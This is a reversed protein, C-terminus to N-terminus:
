PSQSKYSSRCPKIVFEAVVGVGFVSKHVFKLATVAIGPVRILLKECFQVIDEIIITRPRGVRFRQLQLLIQPLIPQLLTHFLRVQPLIELVPTCALHTVFIVVRHKITLNPLIFIPMHQAQMQTLENARAGDRRGRLTM